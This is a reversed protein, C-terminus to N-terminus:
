VARNAHLAVVVGKNTVDVLLEALLHGEGTQAAALGARDGTRLHGVGKIGAVEHGDDAGALEDGASSGFQAVRRGMREHLVAGVQVEAAHRDGVGLDGASRHGGQTQGLLEGRRDGAHAAAVDVHDGLGAEDELLTVAHADDGGGRLHSLDGLEKTVGRM